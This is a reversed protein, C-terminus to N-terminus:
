LQKDISKLLNLDSLYTIKLNNEEGKIVHTKFKNFNYMSETTDVMNNIDNDSLYSYGDLLEKYKYIQPTQIDVIKKKNPTKVLM